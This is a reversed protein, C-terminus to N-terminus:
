LTTSIQRIRFDIRVPFAHLVLDSGGIAVGQASDFSLISVHGIDHHHLLVVLGLGPPPLPSLSHYECIIQEMCYRDIYEALAHKM